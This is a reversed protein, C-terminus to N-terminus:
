AGRRRDREQVFRALVESSEPGTAHLTASRPDTSLEVILADGGLVDVYPRGWEVLLVGGRARREDLGLDLVAEDNTLRYLDAHYVLYKASYESVLNYTPSTVPEDSQLGLARAVAGALFTKGAGLDGDLVVLTGPALADALTEGLAITADETALPITDSTHRPRATM